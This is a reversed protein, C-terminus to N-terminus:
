GSSTAMESREVRDRMMARLRALNAVELPGSRCQGSPDHDRSADGETEVFIVVYPFRRVFERRVVGRDLAVLPATVFKEQREIRALVRDVEEVFEFGLGIEQHEYWAAAEDFEHQAVLDIKFSRV